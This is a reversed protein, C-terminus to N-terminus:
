FLLPLDRKKVEEKREVERKCLKGSIKRLMKKTAIKQREGNKQESKARGGTSREIQKHYLM